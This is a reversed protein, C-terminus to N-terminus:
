GAAKARAYIADIARMQAVSDDVSVLAAARGAIADLFNDLQARYTSAGEVTEVSDRGDIRLRLRHGIHPAVFNSFSIKGKAGWLTLEARPALATMSCSIVANAAGFRLQAAMRSDVGDQWTAKAAIVEPEGGIVTRLLHLPYCGLDMMAGGGLELRWRLEDPKKWIRVVFRAQAREVPGIEEVMALLRSVAAHHRWHYAEMFVRDTARAAKAIAEAEAANMCLPKECLVHKGAELAAITWHAHASPPLGIYVADVEPHRVLADYDDLAIPIAHEEAFARARNLDRAAVAIIDVDGRARAPGIM